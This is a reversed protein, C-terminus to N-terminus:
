DVMLFAFYNAPSAPGTLVEIPYGSNRATGFVDVAMGTASPRALAPQRCESRQPVCGDCLHCADPFLAFAKPHGALFVDREIAVLSRGTRASWAHRAKTEPEVNQFHFLLAHRYEGFFRRCADVSPTNPPCVAAGGFHPCGFLCKMRVWEAVIIEGPDLWRYDSFAHRRVMPEIQERIEV